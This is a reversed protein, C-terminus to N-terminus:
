RRPARGKETRQEQQDTAVEDHRQQAAEANRDLTGHRREVPDAQDNEATQDDVAQVSGSAQRVRKVVRDVRCYWDGKTWQYGVFTPKKNIFIYM